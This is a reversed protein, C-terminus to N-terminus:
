IFYNRVHVCSITYSIMLNSVITVCDFFHKTTKVQM